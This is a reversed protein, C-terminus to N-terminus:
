DKMPAPKLGQLTAAMKTVRAKRAAKDMPPLPLVKKRIANMLAATITEAMRATYTNERPPGERLWYHVTQRSVGYLKALEIKNLGSQTAVRKFSM